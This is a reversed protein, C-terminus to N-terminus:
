AGMRREAAVMAAYEREERQWESIIEIEKNSMMAWNPETLKGSGECAECRQDYEGRMYMEQEEYSWENNWEEATIGHGDVALSHTGKGNCVNCIVFKAPVEVVYENGEDDEFDFLLKMTRRDFEPM